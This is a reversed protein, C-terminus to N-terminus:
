NTTCLFTPSYITGIAYLGKINELPSITLLVGSPRMTTYFYKEMIGDPTNDRLSSIKNIKTLRYINRSDHQYDFYYERRLNYNHGNSIVEGDMSLFGKGNNKFLFIVTADIIFNNKKLVQHYHTKCSFNLKKSFLLYTEKYLLAIVLISTLTIWFATKKLLHKM